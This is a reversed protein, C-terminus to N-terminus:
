VLRTIRMELRVAVQEGPQLLRSETRLDLALTGTREVKGLIARTILPPFSLSIRYGDVEAQVAGAPCQAGTLMRAAGLGDPLISWPFALEGKQLLVLTVAGPALLHLGAGWSAQLPATGRNLLRSEVCLVGGHLRYRRSLRLGGSLEATVVVADAAAIATASRTAWIAIRAPRCWSRTDKPCRTLRGSM